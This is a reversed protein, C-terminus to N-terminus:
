QIVHVEEIEQKETNKEKTVESKEETEIDAEVKIEDNVDKLEEKNEVKELEILSGNKGNEINENNGNHKTIGNSGNEKAEMNSKETGNKVSNGNALINTETFKQLLKGLQKFYGKQLYIKLNYYCLIAHM